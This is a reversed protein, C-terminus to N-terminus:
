NKYHEFGKILLKLIGFNQLHAKKRKACKTAFGARGQVSM